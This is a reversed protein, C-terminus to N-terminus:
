GRREQGTTRLRGLWQVLASAILVGFAACNAAAVLGLLFGGIREGFGYGYVACVLAVLAFASRTLIRGARGPEGGDRMGNM